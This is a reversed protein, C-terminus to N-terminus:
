TGRCDDYGRSTGGEPPHCKNLQGPFRAAARRREAHPYEETPLNYRDGGRRRVGEGPFRSHPPVSDLRTCRGREQNSRGPTAAQQGPTWGVQQVVDTLIKANRATRHRSIGCRAV